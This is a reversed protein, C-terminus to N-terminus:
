CSYPPTQPFGNSKILGINHIKQMERCLMYQSICFYINLPFCSIFFMNKGKKLLKRPSGLVYKTAFRIAEGYGVFSAGDSSSTYNVHGFYYIYQISSPLIYIYITTYILLIYVVVWCVNRRRDSTQNTQPASIFTKRVSSM